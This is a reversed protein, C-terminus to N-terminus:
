IPPFSFMLLHPIKKGENTKFWIVSDENIVKYKIGLEITSGLANINVYKRMLRLADETSIKQGQYFGTSVKMQVKEGYLIQGFLSEDCLALVESNHRRHIKFYVCRSSSDNTTSKLKNLQSVPEM